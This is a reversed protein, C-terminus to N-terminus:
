KEERKSKVYFEKQDDLRLCGMSHGFVCGCDICYKRKKLIMRDKYQSGYRLTPTHGVVVTKDSFYDRELDLREWLLESERYTRLAKEERFTSGFGGHVLVYQRGSVEIEEYVPLASLFALIELREEKPLAEYQDATINGGNYHIWNIATERVYFNRPRFGDYIVWEASELFMDEHNGKLLQINPSRMIEQLLMIPEPGRDVVDVLVYLKDEGSFSIKELMEHFEEQCGHLDSMVYVAM